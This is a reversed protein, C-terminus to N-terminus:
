LLSSGHRPQPITRFSLSLSPPMNMNSCIDKETPKLSKPVHTVSLVTELMQAVLNPNLDVDSLKQRSYEM